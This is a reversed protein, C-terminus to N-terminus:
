ETTNQFFHSRTDNFNSEKPTVQLSEFQKDSVAQGMESELEFDKM